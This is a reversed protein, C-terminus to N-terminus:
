SKKIKRIVTSIKQFFYFFLNFKFCKICLKEAFLNKIFVIFNNLNGSDINSLSTLRKECLLNVRLSRTKRKPTTSTSPADFIPIYKRKPSNCQQIPSTSTKPSTIVIDLPSYNGSLQPSRSVKSPSNYKRKPTKVTNRRKSPSEHDEAKFDLKRKKPTIQVLNQPANKGSKFVCICEEQKDITVDVEPESDSSDTATAGDINSIMFKTSFNPLKHNIKFINQQIYSKSVRKYNCKDKEYDAIYYQNIHELCGFTGIEDIDYVDLDRHDSQLQYRTVYLEKEVKKNHVIKREINELYFTKRIIAGDIQLHKLIQLNKSTKVFIHFYYRNLFNYLKKKLYRDSNNAIYKIIDVLYLNKHSNCMVYDKEINIASAVYKNDESLCQVAICHATTDNKFMMNINSFDNASEREYNLMNGCLDDTGDFQPFNTLTVDRSSERTVNLDNSETNEKNNIVEAMNGHNSGKQMSEWSNLDDLDLSTINLDEIEEEEPDDNKVPQSSISYQSGLVSDNDVNSKIENEEALDALMEVLQIDDADM